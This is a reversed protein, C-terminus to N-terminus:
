YTTLILYFSPQDLRNDDDLLFVVVKKHVPMVTNKGGPVHTDSLELCINEFRGDFTSSPISFDASSIPTCVSSSTFIM